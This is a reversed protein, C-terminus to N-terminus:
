TEAPIRAPFQNPTSSPEANPVASTSTEGPGRRQFCKPCTLKETHCDAVRNDADRAVEFIMVRVCIPWLSM